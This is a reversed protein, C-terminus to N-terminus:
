KKQMEIISVASSNGGTALAAQFIVVQDYSEDSTLWTIGPGTYNQQFESPYEFGTVGNQVLVATSGAKNM